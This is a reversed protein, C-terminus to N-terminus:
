DQDDELFEPVVARVLDGFYDTFKVCLNPIREAAVDAQSIGAPGKLQLSRLSTLQGVLSFLEAAELPPDGHMALLGLHELQTAQRLVHTSAVAVSSPLMLKRLNALWPGGPLQVGAPQWDAPPGPYWVCRQLHALRTVAEPLHPMFHLNLATLQPLADLVEGVGVEGETSECDNLFLLRLNSLPRLM